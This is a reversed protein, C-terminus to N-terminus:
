GTEADGVLEDLVAFVRQRAADLSNEVAESLGVGPECREPEVGVAALAPPLDGLLAAARLLEGAAAEHPTMGPAAAAAGLLGDGRLAHVTGPAAGLAIADLVVLASRGAVARLLALGQTGGDVFEVEGAWRPAERELESLLRPGVGDDGLLANGLGLVLVTARRGRDVGAPNGGRGDPSGPTM